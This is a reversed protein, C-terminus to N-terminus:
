FTVMCFMLVTLSDIYYGITVQLSGFKGLTYWDGTFAKVTGSKGEHESTDFHFRKSDPPLDDEAEAADPQQARIVQGRTARAEDGEDPEDHEEAHEQHEAALDYVGNESIWVGFLGYLSLVCGLLIAATAVYGAYIGHKGMRPGFFVILVFSALPLLWATGLLVPLQEAASM